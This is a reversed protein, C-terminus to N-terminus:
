PYSDVGLLGSACDCSFCNYISIFLNREEKKKHTESYNYRLVTNIGDNWADGTDQEMKVTLASIIEEVVRDPDAIINAEICQLDQIDTWWPMRVPPVDEDDIDDMMVVYIKKSFKLAMKYEKEVYSNEKHLIGKTFFLVVAQCDYIKEAITREWKEGYEIGKDYWLEIGNRSMQRAIERVRDADETNYSLFYYRPNDSPRFGLDCAM